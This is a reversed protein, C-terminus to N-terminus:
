ESKKDAATPLNVAIGFCLRRNLIEYKSKFEQNKDIESEREKMIRKIENFMIEKENKEFVHSAEFLYNRIEKFNDNFSNTDTIKDTIDKFEEFSYKNKYFLNLHITNYFYKLNEGILILDGFKLNEQNQEKADLVFITKYFGEELQNIENIIINNDFDFNPNFNEMKGLKDLTIKYDLTNSILILDDPYFRFKIEKYISEIEYKQLKVQSDIVFITRKFTSIPKEVKKVDYIINKKKIMKGFNIDIRSTISALNQLYKFTGEEEM